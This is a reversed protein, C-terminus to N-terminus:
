ASRVVPLPSSVEDRVRLVLFTFVALWLAAQAGHLAHLMTVSIGYFAWTPTLLAAWAGALLWGAVAGHVGAHQNATRLLALAPLLLIVDDYLTSHAWFRAILAAIGLLLWPDSHRVHWMWFGALTILVLSAPTMWGDLGLWLLLLHLLLHPLHPNPVGDEIPVRVSAIALWDRVLTLLTAPQLAAAAFTM